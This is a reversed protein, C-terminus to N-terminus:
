EESHTLVKKRIKHARRLEGAFNAGEYIRRENANELLNKGSLSDAKAKYKCSFNM